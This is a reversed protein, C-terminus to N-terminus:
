RYSFDMKNDNNAGDDNVQFPNFEPPYLESLPIQVIREGDAIATNKNFIEKYGMLALNGATLPKRSM